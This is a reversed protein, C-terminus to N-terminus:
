NLGLVASCTSELPTVFFVLSFVEGEPFRVPITVRQSIVHNSTGDILRLQLPPHMSSTPLDYASVLSSNIFCHSSGSDLLASIKIPKQETHLLSINVLFSSSSTSVANLRLHDAAHGLSICDETCAM